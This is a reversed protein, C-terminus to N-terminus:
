TAGLTVIFIKKAVGGWIGELADTHRELLVTIDNLHLLVKSFIAERFRNQLSKSINTLLSSKLIM